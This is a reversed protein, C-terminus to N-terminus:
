LQCCQTACARRRNRLGNQASQCPLQFFRDTGLVSDTAPSWCMSVTTRRLSEKSTNMWRSLQRTRIASMVDYSITAQTLWCARFREFSSAAWAFAISGRMQSQSVVNVTKKSATKAAPPVLTM